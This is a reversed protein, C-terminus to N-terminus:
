TTRTEQITTADALQRPAHHLSSPRSPRQRPHGRRAPDLGDERAHDRPRAHRGGMQRDRLRRRHATREAVPPAGMWGSRSRERLNDGGLVWALVSGGAEELESWIRLRWPDIRFVGTSQALCQREFVSPLNSTYLLAKARGEDSLPMGSFNGMFEGPGREIYDEYMRSRVCREARDARLLSALALLASLTVLRMLGIRM